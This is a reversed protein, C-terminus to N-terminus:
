DCHPDEIVELSMSDGFVSDVVQCILQRLPNRTLSYCHGAFWRETGRISTDSSALVAVSPVDAVTSVTFSQRGPAPHVHRRSPRM